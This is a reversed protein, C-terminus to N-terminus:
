ALHRGINTGVALAAEGLVHMTQGVSGGRAVRAWRSTCSTRTPRRASPTQRLNICSDPPVAVTSTSDACDRRALQGPLEGRRARRGTRVASLLPLVRGGAPRGRVSRFTFSTVTPPVSVQWQKVGRSRNRRWCGRKYCTTRRHGDNIYAWATRTPSRSAAPAGRAEYAMGRLVGHRRSNGGRGNEISNWLLEAATAHERLDGHGTTAPEPVPSAVVQGGASIRTTRVARLVAPRRPTPGSPVHATCHLQALGASPLRRAPAVPSDSCARAARWWQGRRRPHPNQGGRSAEAVFSHGPSSSQMGGLSLLLGSVL